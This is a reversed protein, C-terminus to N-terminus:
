RKGWRFTNHHEPAAKGYRNQQGHQDTKARTKRECGPQRGPQLQQLLGRRRLVQNRHHDMEAVLDVRRRKRLAAVPAGGAGPHQLRKFGPCAAALPRQLREQAALTNRAPPQPDDVAHAGLHRHCQEVGQRVPGPHFEEVYVGGNLRGRRDHLDFRRSRRGPIDGGGPRRSEPVFGNDPGPHRHRNEIRPHVGVVRGHSGVATQAAVPEIRVRRGFRRRAIVQGVAQRMAGRDGRKDEAIRKVILGDAHRRVRLPDGRPNEVLAALGGVGIDEGGHLPREVRVAVAVGGVGGIDDVVGPAEGIICADVLAEIEAERGSRFVQLVGTDVHNVRAAIGPGVRGGADTRGVVRDTEAGTGDIRIKRDAAERRAARRWTGVTDVGRRPLRIDVGLQLGGALVQQDGVTRRRISSRGQHGPGGEGGGM